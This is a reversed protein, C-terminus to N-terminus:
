KADAIIAAIDDKRTVGGLDIGHADAYAKLEAVTMDEVPKDVVEAPDDAPAEEADESEKPDVEVEAVLGVEVLHALNAATSPVEAGHALYESVGEVEAVALPGTVVHRM